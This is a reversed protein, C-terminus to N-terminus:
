SAMQSGHRRPVVFFPQDAGNERLQLRLFRDHSVFSSLFDALVAGFVTPPVTLEDPEIVVDVWVGSAVLNHGDLRIPAFRRALNVAVIAKADPAYGTPACLHLSDRLVRAPDDCTTLPNFSSGILAVLDWQRDANLRPPVAQSPEELVTFEAEALEDNEIRTRDGPRLRMAATGNSCLLQAILDIGTDILKDDEPISLSIDRRASDPESSSLREQWVPGGAGTIVAPAALQSLPTEGDSGLQTVSLVRLITPRTGQGRPVRVPMRDRAFSYHRPESVTKFLNICPVANIVLDGMDLRRIHEIGRRGLFIRIEAKDGRLAAAGQVIHRLRFGFARDPYALFDHLEELGQPQAFFRPLYGDKGGAAVPMFAGIPLLANHAAGRSPALAVGKVDLALAEAIRRRNATNRPIYVELEPGLCQLISHGPVKSKLELVVTGEVREVGEPVPHPLPVSELRQGCLVVPSVVMPRAVTYMCSVAGEHHFPVGTGALLRVPNDPLDADSAPVVYSHSPAGLILSPAINRLLELAIDGRADDMRKHLRAAVYAFGDALRQLDPDSCRGSSLGLARAKEPNATAFDSLSRRMLDLEIEFYQLFGSM